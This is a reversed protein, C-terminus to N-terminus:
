FGPGYEQTGFGPFGPRRVGEFGPYQNKRAGRDLAPVRRRRSRPDSARFMVQIQVAQQPRPVPCVLPPSFSPPPCIYALFSPLTSRTLKHTHDYLCLAFSLSLALALRRCIRPKVLALPEDRPRTTELPREEQVFAGTLVIRGTRRHTPTGAHVGTEREIRTRDAGASFASPGETGRM